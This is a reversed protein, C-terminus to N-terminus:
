DKNNFLEERTVKNVETGNELKKSIMNYPAVIVEQGEEIGEIIEIYRIDQIGSEVEQMLAKGNDYLFVVELLQDTGGPLQLSDKKPITDERTTVAEVPVTLINQKSHTQIDATASMGPRMPNPNTESILDEYSSKLLLIKVDFNTVQDASTGTTNASNAIETVVGKFKRDIYADLEILATDNLNVRVIDNENVEVLLEMRGLDAIRLLETGPMMSTGVVREGKEVYLVSVTGNMPSYITTKRLDEQAEKLSAEASRISYQASLVSQEAAEIEAKAVDFSAQAEDWEAKSIAGEEFLKKSREYAHRTQEFQARVQTLRAKSNALNAKASNVAAEARDRMSIYNDPKIKVLLQGEQVIDGDKVHLEVIEGSVDPSIKVETEPQIKGNATITEIIDRYRAEEVAVDYTVAKGFWGAKKGIIAFIILVAAGILLYRLLKKSNM